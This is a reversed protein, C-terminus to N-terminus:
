HVPWPKQMEVGGDVDPERRSKRGPVQEDLRDKVAQAFEDEHRPEDWHRRKAKGAEEGGAM